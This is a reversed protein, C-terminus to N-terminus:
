FGNKKDIKHGRSGHIRRWALWVIAQIQHPKLGVMKAAEQYDRTALLFLRDTLRAQSTYILEGMWVAYTHGDVTVAQTRDPDLFCEHFAREKHGKLIDRPDEGRLIRVAKANQFWVHQGTGFEYAHLVQRINEAWGKNPSLCAIVGCITRKDTPLNSGQRRVQQKVLRAVHQYMDRYWTLGTAIESANAQHYVKLINMVQGPIRRKSGM